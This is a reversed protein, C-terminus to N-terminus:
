LSQTCVIDEDVAAGMIKRFHKYIDRITTPSYHKRRQRRAHVKAADAM